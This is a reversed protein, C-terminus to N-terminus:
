NENLVRLKRDFTRWSTSRDFDLKPFWRNPEGIHVDKVDVFENFFQNSEFKSALIDDVIDEIINFFRKDHLMRRIKKKKKSGGRKLPLGNRKLKNNPFLYLLEENSFCKREYLERLLSHKSQKQIEKQLFLDVKNM